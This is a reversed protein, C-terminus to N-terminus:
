LDKVGILVVFCGMQGTTTAAPIEYEIYYKGSKPASFNFDQTAKKGSEDFYLIVKKGKEMGYITIGVELPLATQGFVLKYEEDSFVEFDLTEKKPKPGYTIEKVVYSDYQFPAMLPMCQKVIPKVKCQASLDNHVFLLIGAFITYLIYKTM